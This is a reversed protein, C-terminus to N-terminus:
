IYAYIYMIWVGHEAIDRLSYNITRESTVDWFCHLM